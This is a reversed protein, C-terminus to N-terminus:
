ASRCCQYRWRVLVEETPQRIIPEEAEELLEISRLRRFGRSQGVACPHAEGDGCDYRSRRVGDTVNVRKALHDFFWADDRARAKKVPRRLKSGSHASGDH